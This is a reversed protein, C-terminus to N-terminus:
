LVLSGDDPLQMNELKVDTNYIGHEALETLYGALQEATDTKDLTSRLHKELATCGSLMNMVIAPTGEVCGPWLRKRQDRPIQKLMNTTVSQVKAEVFKCRRPIEISEIANIERM